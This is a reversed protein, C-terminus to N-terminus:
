LYKPIAVPFPYLCIKLSAGSNTIICSFRFVRLRISHHRFFLSKVYFCPMYCWRIEWTELFGVPRDHDPVQKGRRRPERSSWERVELESAMCACVCEALAEGIKLRNRSHELNM